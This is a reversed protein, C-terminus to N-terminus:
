TDNRTFKLRLSNSACAPDLGKKGLEVGGTLEWVGGLVKKAVPTHEEFDM